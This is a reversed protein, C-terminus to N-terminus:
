KDPTTGAAEDLYHQMAKASAADRSRIAHAYFRFTTEPSAHGLRHAVAVADLNNAFLLTAHTHRLDHFTIDPFGERDAFKRFQKSPTDHHQPSGDWGCVIRGVGRWRDGMKAAQEDQWAKTEQLLTMMGAPLDILREGEESKTTDIYNGHGPAYNLGRAVNIACRKWDVDEWELGGVENLRLGCLLALMVASRFSLSEEVSLRRLLQVAREDDLVALKAKRAKPRQVDEMPNAPILKWGLGTDFMDSITDYYHQVTRDSLPKSPAAARERDQKRKRKEPDIATTRRPSKRLDAMLQQLDVPTLSTVRRDGIAPLVRTTMLNQYTKVTTYKLNPICHLDMWKDYLQRVTITYDDRSAPAAAGQLMAADEPTINYKSILTQLDTVPQAPAPQDARGEADDVILRALEVDCAKRQEDESMTSPFTVTRRVWARGDASSRRFGIRWTNAGRKEITGM